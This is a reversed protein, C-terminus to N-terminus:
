FIKLYKMLINLMKIFHFFRLKKIRNQIYRILIFKIFIKKIINMM